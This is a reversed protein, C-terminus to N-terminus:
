LVIIKYAKIKSFIHVFLSFNGDKENEKKKEKEEKKLKKLFIDYEKKTM